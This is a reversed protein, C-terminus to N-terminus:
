LPPMATVPFKFEKFFIGTWIIAIFINFFAPITVIPIQPYNLIVGMKDIRNNFNSNYLSVGQKAQGCGYANRVAPQNEPFM